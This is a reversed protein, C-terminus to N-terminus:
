KSTDNELKRKIARADELANHPIDSSYNVGKVLKFELNPCPMYGGRDNQIFECFYKIDAPHDAVVVVEDFHSLYKWLRNWATGAKIPEKNLIPLVNERVWPIIHADVYEIVEYFEHGNDAVLAMSLLEGAFGNFECDIYIKNKMIYIILKKVLNKLNLILLYEM